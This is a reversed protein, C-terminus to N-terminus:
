LWMKKINVKKLVSLNSKRILKLNKDVLNIVQM